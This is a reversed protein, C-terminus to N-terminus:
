RRLRYQRAALGLISLGALAMTSPEPVSSAPDTSLAVNSFTIDKLLNATLLGSPADFLRIGIQGSPAVAGTVFQYTLQDVNSSLISLAVLAGPDNSTGVLTNGGATLGIGVGETALASLNGILGTSTINVMLSYSTNALYNIGTDVQFWGSNNVLIGVNIGAIGDVTASGGTVGGTTSITLSPPALVGFIGNYTGTWPGQNINVGSASPTLLGGGVTGANNPDTFNSSFILTSATANGALFLLLGCLLQSRWGYIGPRNRMLRRHAQNCCKM